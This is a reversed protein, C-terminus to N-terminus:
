GDDGSIEILGQDALDLVLDAITRRAKALDKAAPMQDNALEAEVMRRARASLTALVLDRLEVEAGKLATIVTETQVKEFLVLRAKASLKVIDEFNFLMGKIIEATEPREESLSALLAETQERDLKNIIDAMRAQAGSEPNRVVNVLLDEHVAAELLKLMPEYIHKLSLMRRSVSHRTEASFQGLVKAACSTTVKSLILAVTQPHEEKLYKYLAQEPLASLRDWVSQNSSGMVDAMIDSVQAPELASGLLLEAGEVSGVLDAGSSFYGAFEEIVGELAPGPISGLEAAARTIQRLEFPDFQKLLAAALATEMSLLLAAVKEAGRFRRFPANGFVANGSIANGTAM